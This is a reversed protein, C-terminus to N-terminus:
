DPLTEAQGNKLILEAATRVRDGLEAPAVVRAAGGWMLIWREVEVLSSLTMQLELEGGTRE